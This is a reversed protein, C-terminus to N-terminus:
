LPQLMEGAIRMGLACVYCVIWCKCGVIAEGGVDHRMAM